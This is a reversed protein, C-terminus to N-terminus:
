IDHWDSLDGAMQNQTWAEAQENLAQMVVMNSWVWVILGEGLLYDSTVYDATTLSHSGDVVILAM